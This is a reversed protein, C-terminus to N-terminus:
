PLAARVAVPSSAMREWAAIAVLVLAAAASLAVPSLYNAAPVLAGLAILGAVHSMPTQGVIVRKFLLNGALYLATGLLVTITVKPEASGGPQHLVFEDSVASVVIGAVMFLHIYTYALRALRGPNRSKAIRESAVAATTDFYLWWMAISGVLSVVFAWVTTTTWVLESFKAGTVLVSEGLAIIIFGACREALHGGAVNWDELRSPGLVPVWFYVSPALYELGLALAWLGLRNSGEAFGGAIWIAGTLSLWILIRQFNRVMGPHGRVAWIFFLSRGVQMSVYAAAFALGRSEFAKPISASLILGLLMMVMLALRVPLKEPDLWNTVWSTFIWVWWVALLLLLTEVAGLPTFHAILLHSLQTIAYVFVLDFFLEIFTVKARGHESRTRLLRSPKPM